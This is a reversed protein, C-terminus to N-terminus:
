DKADPPPPEEGAPPAQPEGPWAPPAEDMMMMHPQPPMPEAGGPGKAKRRMGFVVGIAILIIIVGILLVMWWDLGFVSLASSGEVSITKVEEVNGAVDTSYYEVTRTGRGKVKFAGEYVTWEGGDIRYKTSSLGSVGDVASFTVTSGDVTATTVPATTDMKFELSRTVGKNGAVDVAYYELTYAGVGSIRMADGPLESWDENNLRHMIFAVGSSEDTSSFTIRVTSVFWDDLGMTGNVDTTTEPAETDIMVEATRVPEDNGAMDISYYQVTHVGDAFVTFSASYTQWSGGDIRYSTNAVGGTGGTVNLTVEVDGVFWGNEGEDGTLEITTFPPEESLVLDGYMAMPPADEFFMPWSSYVEKDDPYYVEGVFSVLGLTDGPFAMLLALPICLEFLRHATTSEVGAGFGVAGALGDHDTDSDDFPFCHETWSGGSYVTHTTDVGAGTTLLMFADEHGDSRLGDNGTDFEVFAVDGESATTDGVVDILIFLHTGNNLIYMTAAMGNMGDIAMYDVADAGFWEEASVVGDIVPAEYAWESDISPVAPDFDPLDYIGYIDYYDTDMYNDMDDYLTLEVEWLGGGALAIAWGDFRLEVEQTGEELHTANMDWDVWAGYYDRLIGLVKYDGASYVEVVVDVSLYEYLGDADDDVANAGHPTSFEAPPGAFDYYYYYDTYHDGTDLLLGDEDELWMDVIFNGSVGNVEIIWGDFALGINGTGVAIYETRSITTLPGWYDSMAAWVTYYGAESCDLAANVVLYDYYTDGDNDVAYDEHPPAFLVGPPDFESLFYYDDTSYYDYDYTIYTYHDLLELDLYWYGDSSDRLISYSDIEIEVPTVTEAEIYLELMITDYYGSPDWVVVWLEYYGSSSANVYVVFVLYDYLGDGDDDRGYDAHPGEFFAGFPDFDDQYYSSTYYSMTDYYYTGEENYIYASLYFWGYIGNATIDDGDLIISYVEQVGEELYLLEEFGDFYWYYSDYVDVEVLFYGSSLPDIYIDIVIENYHGDGDTDRGYDDVDYFYAGVPDFNWYYYYSTSFYDNDHIIATANETLYMDLDLSDSLSADQVMQSDYTITYYTTTGEELSLTEFIYDFSYIWEDVYIELDYVGTEYCEIPITIVIQNYYGDSDTDEAYDDYPPAFAVPKGEFDSWLYTGTEYYDHMLYSYGEDYLDLYVQCYGDIGSENVLSALVALEVYHAGASFPKSLEVYDIYESPTDSYVDATVTYIGPVFVQLSVNIILLDYADNADGFDVAYDSHPPFFMALPEDFDTYVYSSTDYSTFNITATESDELWIVVHYPGDAMDEYIEEGSFNLSITSVGAPVDATAYANTVYDWAADNVEGYLNLYGGVVADVVVDVVLNDFDGDTDADYGYDSFPTAFVAQNAKTTLTVTDNVTSDVYSSALLVTTENQGTPPNPVTVRVILDMSEGPVLDGTNDDVLPTYTGDLVEVAWGLDSSEVSINFSDTVAQANMVSVDYEVVEGWEARSFRDPGFGVLGREFKVALGNSLVPDGNSYATGITGDINEIGVTATAGDWASLELYQLWIEGTENLIIEFTLLSSFYNRSVEYYEIVM